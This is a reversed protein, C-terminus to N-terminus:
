IPVIMSCAGLLQIHLLMRQQILRDEHLASLYLFRYDFNQSCLTALLNTVAQLACMCTNLLRTIAQGNVCHESYTSLLWFINLYSHTHPRLEGTTARMCIWVLFPLDRIASCDNPIVNADLMYNEVQTHYLLFSIFLTSM